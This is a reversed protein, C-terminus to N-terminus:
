AEGWGRTYSRMDAIDEKRWGYTLYHVRMTAYDHGASFSIQSQREQYVAMLWSIMTKRLCKTTIYKTDFNSDRAARKFVQEMNQYALLGVKKDFYEKVAAVGPVSLMIQRSKIKSKVKGMGAVKPLFIAGHTERFCEPHETVYEAESIRMATHLLFEFRVQYDENLEKKIAVWEHPSLVAVVRNGTSVSLPVIMIYYQMLVHYINGYNCSKQSIKTSKHRKLTTTM